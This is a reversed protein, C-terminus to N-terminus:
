IKFILMAIIILLLLIIVKLFKNEKKMIDYDIVFKM